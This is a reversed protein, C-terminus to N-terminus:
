IELNDGVLQAAERLPDAALHAYRATTRPQSHGLLAGIMPLTMGNMVAVSAFTHRLDHIRVDELGAVKRIRQWAKQLEKIPQGPILGCFVYPNSLQRPTLELIKLAKQNLYLTKAGTKSKPLDIVGRDIDIYEWKMNLVERLRAGTQCILRLANISYITALKEKEAQRLADGLRKQEIPSLFRQRPNEKYKEVHRCPNTHDIRYGFKESWNFFKSLLALTKNASCPTEKMSFHLQAIDQRTVSKIQARKLKAPLRKNYIMHYAERTRPALKADVHEKLFVEMVEAVTKENQAEDRSSMPDVGTSIQGLTKKAEKRAQDTTISGHVGLTFRRTKGGRGGMRYQVIYTKRGSPLIKLGFGSLDSDWLYSTKDSPKTSDVTRKTIRTMFEENDLARWYACLLCRTLFECSVGSLELFSSYLLKLSKRCKLFTLSVVSFGKYGNPLSSTPLEIRGRPV